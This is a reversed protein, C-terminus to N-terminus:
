NFFYCNYNIDKLKGNVLEIFHRWSIGRRMNKIENGKCWESWVIASVIAIILLAIGIIVMPSMERSVWYQNIRDFDHEEIEKVIFNDTMIDVISKNNYSKYKKILVNIFEM